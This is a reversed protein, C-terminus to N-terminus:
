PRMIGTSRPQRERAVPTAPEEAGGRHARLRGRCSAQLGHRRGSGDNLSAVGIRLPVSTRHDVLHEHAAEEVGGRVAVAVQAPQSGLQVVQLPQADVAEPQQREVGGRQAVAAVVDGVEELDMGVVPGHVVRHGQDLLRVLAADPDDRVQDHVVRRVLVGPELLRAGALVVRLGVPVHPAVVLAPPGLRPDDEHVGLRAVPGPVAGAALEVPVAEVAVLGVQVVGVGLDPRRHEVDDVVPQAHAEVAEAEVGHRVQELGVAGVPLVQGRGVLVQALQARVDVLPEGSAHQEGLGVLPGLVHHLVETVAVLAVHAEVEREHGPHEHGQAALIGAGDVVDQGADRRDGVAALPADEQAVVVLQGQLHDGVLLAVVHVLLVRGVRPHTAVDPDAAPQEREDLAVAPLGLQQVRQQEGKGPM